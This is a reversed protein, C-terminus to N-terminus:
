RETIVDCPLCVPCAASQPLLVVHVLMRFISLVSRLTTDQQGIRIDYTSSDEAQEPDIRRGLAM